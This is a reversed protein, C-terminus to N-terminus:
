KPVFEQMLRPIEIVVWEPINVTYILKVLANDDKLTQSLRKIAILITDMSCENVDKEIFKLLAVSIKMVMLDGELIILDWLRSAVPIDLSKVFLTMVWEILYQQPFIGESEFQECLEPLNHHFIQKFIQIRRTIQDNDGRFFPLMMWSSVLSTMCVFAKFKDMVLLLMGAIYSM